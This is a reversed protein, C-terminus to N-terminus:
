PDSSGNPKGGAPGPKAPVDDPHMYDALDDDDFSIGGPRHPDPALAPAPRRLPLDDPGPADVDARWLGKIPKTPARTSPAATDRPRAPTTPRTARLSAGSSVTGDGFSRGRPRDDITAEDLDARPDAHRLGDVTSHAARRPAALGRNARDYADRDDDGARGRDEDDRDRDRDDFRRRTAARPPEDEVYTDGGGDSASADLEDLQRVAARAEPLEDLDIEGRRILDLVIAGLEALADNRRRTARVDDLRARGERAGRELADRVVDTTTRLLTGLTGRLEPPRFGGRRKSAM